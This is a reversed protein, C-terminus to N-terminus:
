AEMCAGISYDIDLLGVFQLLLINDELKGSWTGPWYM